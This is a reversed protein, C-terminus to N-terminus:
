LERAICELRQDTREKKKIVPLTSVLGEEAEEAEETQEGIYLVGRARQGILIQAGANKVL